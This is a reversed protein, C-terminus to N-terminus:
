GRQKLAEAQLWDRFEVLGPRIESSSRYVVYYDDTAALPPMEVPVVLRGSKLEADLFSTRGLAIGVGEMAAQYALADGAFMLAPASPPRDYGAARLIDNWQGAHTM